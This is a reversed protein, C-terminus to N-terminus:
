HLIAVDGTLLLDITLDTEAMVHVVMEGIYLNKLKVKRELACTGLVVIHQTVEKIGMRVYVM